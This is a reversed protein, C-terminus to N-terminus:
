VRLKFGQTGPSFTQISGHPWKPQEGESGHGSWPMILHKVWWHGLERDRALGPWSIIHFLLGLTM